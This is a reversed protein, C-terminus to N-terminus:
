HPKGESQPESEEGHNKGTSDAEVSASGGKEKLGKVGKDEKQNEDLHDSAFKPRIAIWKEMPLENNITSEILDAPPAMVNNYWGRIVKSLNVSVKTDMASGLVEPPTQHAEHISVRSERMSEKFDEGSLEQSVKEYHVRKTLDEVSEDGGFDFVAIRPSGPKKTETFTDIRKQADPFTWLDQDDPATPDKKPEGPDLNLLLVGATFGNNDYHTLRHQKASSALAIDKAAGLYCPLGYWDSETCPDFVHIIQEKKWNTVVEEKEVWCFGAHQGKSNKKVRMMRANLCILKAVDDKGNKSPVKLLYANGFMWSDKCFRLFDMKSLFQHFLKRKGWFAKAKNLFLKINQFWSENYEQHFDSVEHPVLSYALIRAKFGLLSEHLANMTSLKALTNPDVPPKIWKLDSEDTEFIVLDKPIVGEAAQYSVKNKNHPEKKAPEM